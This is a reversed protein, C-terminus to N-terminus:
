SPPSPTEAYIKKLFLMRNRNGGSNKEVEKVFNLAHENENNWQAGLGFTFQGGDKHIEAAIASLVVLDVAM